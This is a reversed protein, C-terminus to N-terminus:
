GPPHDRQVQGARERAERVIQERDHFPDLQTDWAALREEISMVPAGTPTGSVIRSGDPSLMTGSRLRAPKVTLLSWGARDDPDDPTPAYSTALVPPGWSNTAEGAPRPQNPYYRYKSRWQGALEVVEWLADSAGAYQESGLLLIDGHRLGANGNPPLGLDRNPTSVTQGGLVFMPVPRAKAPTRSERGMGGDWGGDPIEVPVLQPAPADTTTDAPLGHPEADEVAWRARIEAESEGATDPEPSAQLLSDCEDRPARHDTVKREARSRWSRITSAPVSFKESASMAGHEDAHALVQARDVVASM